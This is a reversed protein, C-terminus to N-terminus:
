FPNEDSENERWREWTVPPYLSLPTKTVSGARVSWQTTTSASKVRPPLNRVLKVETQNEVEPAYIEEASDILLDEV